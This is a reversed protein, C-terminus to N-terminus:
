TGMAGALRESGVRVPFVLLRDQHILRSMQTRIPKGTLSDYLM